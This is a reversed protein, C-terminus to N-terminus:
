VSENVLGMRVYGDTEHRVQKWVFKRCNRAVDKYMAVLINSEKSNDNFDGSNLRHRAFRRAKRPDGNVRHGNIWVFRMENKTKM